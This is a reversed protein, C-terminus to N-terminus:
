IYCIWRKDRKIIPYQNTKLNLKKKFKEIDQATKETYPRLLLDIM